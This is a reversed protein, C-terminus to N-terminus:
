TNAPDDSGTGPVITPRKIVTPSNGGHVHKLGMPHQAIWEVAWLLSAFRFVQFQYPCGWYYGALVPATPDSLLHSADSKSIWYYAAPDAAKQYTQGGAEGDVPYYGAEAMWQEVNM